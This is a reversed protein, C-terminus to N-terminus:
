MFLWGGIQFGGGTCVQEPMSFFPFLASYPNPRPEHGWSKGKVFERSMEYEFHHFQVISGEFFSFWEGVSDEISCQRQVADIANPRTYRSRSHASRLACMFPPCLWGRCRRYPSKRMRDAGEDGASCIGVQSPGFGGACPIM